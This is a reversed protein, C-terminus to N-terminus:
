WTQDVGASALELTVEGSRAGIIERARDRLAVLDRFSAGAPNLPDGVWLSVSGRRPILQGDRLMRRTGKLAVPIVPCGADAAARFAGLRFPRVGDAHTFTGEPFVLVREGRNLAKTLQSADTASQRADKREVSIHGCREVFRGVFPYHRVERKAVFIFDEALLARLAIVDLYSAHNCVLLASKGPEFRPSSPTVTAHPTLLRLAIRASLHEFRRASARGMFLLALWSLPAYVALIGYLRLGRAGLAIRALASEATGKVLLAGLKLRATLSDSRDRGLAGSLFLTRTDNRRIKGSSTKPVSGPKVLRVVDPPAGIATTVRDVIQREIEDREAAATAKTEAVIVVQETGSREETVGFAAVCGKRVGPAESAAEEIEAAVLNRGGRIILDKLRGAIYLEGSAIYAQDGTDLFGDPRRMALTAEENRFYGSTMSPGRFLLRGVEREPVPAGAEDVVRIEHEPLASGVCVFVNAHEDGDAAPTAHGKEFAARDVRDLKPGRQVPPMCLGVSCEALGFVPMMTERRFGYKSFRRVFRDMTEPRVPEAGNLACRWSSLDIGEIDEDRIRRVCLEYAFNPAASITGRRRHIDQLWREPRALFSLPSRLALPYASAMTFLWAGILGMDHYLPLWSVGMEMPRADLGLGIARVNAMLNAHTLLVGKPSGTSGSTYQIFAPDEPRSQPSMRLKARPDDALEDATVVDELTPVISKLVEAVAKARSVTIMIRVGASRLIAGQREAYEALRDLRVPPYIPVAVAGLLLAGQFARLFDFGTPLMLAVTDGRSIGRSALGAAVSSAGGFLDGYTIERDSGDDEALFITVRAPAEEARAALARDVTPALARPGTSILADVDGPRDPRPALAPAAAASAGELAAAIEACTEAQLVHDPLLRGSRREIRTILEVKELSGLGVDRELSSTETVSRGAREGGAELALARAEDLVLELPPRASGTTM